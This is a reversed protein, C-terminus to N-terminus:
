MAMSKRRDSVNHIGNQFWWVSKISLLFCCKLLSIGINGAVNWNVSLLGCFNFRMSIPENFKKMIIIWSMWFWANFKDRAGCLIWLVGPLKYSLNMNGNPQKKEKSWIGMVNIIEITNKSFLNRDAFVM